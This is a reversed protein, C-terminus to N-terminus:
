IDRVIATNGAAECLDDLKREKIGKRKDSKNNLQRCKNSANVNLENNTKVNLM